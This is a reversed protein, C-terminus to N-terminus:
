SMLAAAIDDLSDKDELEKDKAEKAIQEKSKGDDPNKPNGYKEVIYDYEKTEDKIFTELARESFDTQSSKDWARLIHDRQADTTSEKTMRDLEERGKTRGDKKEYVALKDETAKLKEQVEKLEGNDMYEQKLIPQFKKDKLIESIHFLQSPFVLQEKVFEQVEQFTAMNPSRSQTNHQTTHPTFCQVTAIQRAGVFAPSEESGKGIAIGTLKNIAEVIFGDRQKETVIDAEISCIDEDPVSDFPAVVVASVKGGITDIYSALVESATRRGNNNNTGEQHGFFLKVGSAMQSMSRIARESWSLKVSGKAQLSVPNSEGEQGIVYAAM